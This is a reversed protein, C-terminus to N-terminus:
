VYVCLDSVIYDCVPPMTSHIARPTPKRTAITAMRRQKMIISRDLATIPSYTAHTTHIYCVVYYITNYTYYIAHLMYCTAHLMYCTANLMYCTANLMYCIAHLMYCTAHLMYCTAHLMYYTAHLIYCTAHLMYCTATRRRELTTWSM